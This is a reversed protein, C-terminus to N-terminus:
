RPCRGYLATYRRIKKALDDNLDGQAARWVWNGFGTGPTNMRASSPLGLWDQMPAIFIDAVSSMGCRILGPAADAKDKIGIYEAATEAVESPANEFWGASTDNDHTGTYCVCSREYRHPLYESESLPDFAFQLVKMGPFGTAKVMEFVAPTLLGLDEAIVRLTPFWGKIVSLFGMGPGKEWKGEAATEARAPVSWYSEFGRFHDIRLVDFLKANMGVRDIWWGYGTKRHYEWDYLPNGWLQGDATFADPPVGSVARPLLNDDLQFLEPKAWLDASDPSIYIPMDGIIFVGNKNAYAKLELWQAFFLYQLYAFFRLEDRLKERYEDLIDRDRKRINDPWESFSVMGFRYKLAM